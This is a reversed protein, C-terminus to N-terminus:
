IMENELFRISRLDLLTNKGDNGIPTQLLGSVLEYKGNFREWLFDRDTVDFAADQCGAVVCFFIMILLIHKM